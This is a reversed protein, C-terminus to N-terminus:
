KYTLMIEKGYSSRPMQMDKLSARVSMDFMLIGSPEKITYSEIAGQWTVCITVVCQTGPAVGLPPRWTRAVEQQIQEQMIYADYEDRNMYLVDPDAGQADVDIEHAVSPEIPEVAQELQEAPPTPVVPEPIKKPEPEPLPQAKQQVLERKKKAVPEPKKACLKQASKKKVADKKAAKSKKIEQAKKAAAKKQQAEKQAREHAQKKARAAALSTEKQKKQRAVRAAEQAATKADRAASATGVRRQAVALKPKQKYFPLVVVRQGSRPKQTTVTFSHKASRGYGVFLLGMLCLHAAVIIGIIRSLLRKKAKNQQWLWM